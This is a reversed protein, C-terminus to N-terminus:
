YVIGPRRSFCRVVFMTMLILKPSCQSWTIKRQQMAPHVINIHGAGPGDPQIKNPAPVIQTFQESGADISPGSGADTSPLGMADSVICATAVLSAVMIALDIEKAKAREVDPEDGTSSGGQLLLQETLASFVFCLTPYEINSQEFNM